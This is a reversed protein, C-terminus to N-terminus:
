LLLKYSHCHIQISDTRQQPSNTSNPVGQTDACPITFQEEMNANLLMEKM